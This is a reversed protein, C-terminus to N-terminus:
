GGRQKNQRGTGLEALLMRLLAAAPAVALREELAQFPFRRQWCQPDEKSKMWRAKRVRWSFSFAVCTASAADVAAASAAGERLLVELFLLAVAVVVVVAVIDITGPRGITM